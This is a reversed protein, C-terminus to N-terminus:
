AKGDLTPLEKKMIEEIHRIQDPYRANKLRAFYLTNSLPAFGRWLLTITGARIQDLCLFDPIVALGPGKALSRIISHINPVIYNPRFDPAARFNLQWFRLLHENDGAIGYWKRSTLWEPLKTRDRNETLAEFGSTDTGAGAALIINEQSFPRYVVNRIEIHHPTVVMDILGKELKQLLERYAGFELVLNFPLQPVYKELSMQFTEFCMGVTLTPIDRGSSKQFKREVEELRTIPDIVTNYLLKGQETPLLRRPARDFLKHGVHNELSSLHVSVGPQSIFLAQAAATMNGKEYVTKFTRLWELNM